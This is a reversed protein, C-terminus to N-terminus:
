LAANGYPNGAALYAMDILRVTLFCDRVGVPPMQGRALAAVTDKLISSLVSGPQTPAAFSEVGKATYLNFGNGESKLIGDRFAVKIEGDGGESLPFNNGVEVTGLVGTKSKVLVSAYDEVAKGHTAWSLQCGTVDIDEGEGTLYVFCDLGHTGLNRLCGGGAIAPDLMWPTGWAPYRASTPRNM